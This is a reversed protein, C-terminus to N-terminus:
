RPLPMPKALKFQMDATYVGGKTSALEVMLYGKIALRIIQWLVYRVGSVFGYPVPGCERFEANEGFGVLRSLQLVSSPTFANYHTIDWYRTMGGFPSTANPVMAVLRGGPRLCRFAAELVRLLKDKDLHELINLAFIRDVSAEPRAQLYAEIDQLVFEANVRSRAFEIEGASMNVGVVHRAGQQVALTTLEGTGSGLDVVDKGQVDFWNGLRRQLQALSASFATEDRASGIASTTRFYDQVVRDQATQEPRVSM